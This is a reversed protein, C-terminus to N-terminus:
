LGRRCSVREGSSRFPAGAEDQESKMWRQMAAFSRFSKSTFEPQGVDPTDTQLSVQLRARLPYRRDLPGLGNSFAAAMKDAMKRAARDQPQAAASVALSAAIAAILLTKKM